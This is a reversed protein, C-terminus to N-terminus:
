PALQQLVGTVYAVHPRIRQQLDDWREEEAGVYIARARELAPRHQMPLQPCVWDAAADKSYIIGTALTAWIRALTLIVNRTDAELDALLGPVGELMARRVDQHPVRDLIEGPPPGFLPRNGRLVMTLLPALDPMQM